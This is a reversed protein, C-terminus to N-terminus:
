NFTPREHIVEIVPHMLDYHNPQRGWKTYNCYLIGIISQEQLEEAGDLIFWSICVVAHVEVCLKCMRAFSSLQAAGEWSQIDQAQEIFHTLGSGGIDHEM